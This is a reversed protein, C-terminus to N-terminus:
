FCLFMVVTANLRVGVDYSLKNGMMDVDHGRSLHMSLAARMGFSAVEPRQCGLCLPPPDGEITQRQVKGNRGPRRELQNLEVERRENAQQLSNAEQEILATKEKLRIAGGDLLHPNNYSAEITEQLLEHTSRQIDMAPALAQLSAEIAATERSLAATLPNDYLANRREDMALSEEDEAFDTWVLTTKSMPKMCSSCSRKDQLILVWCLSCLLEGQHSYLM